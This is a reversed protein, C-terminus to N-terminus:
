FIVHSSLHQSQSCCSQRMFIGVHAALIIIGCQQVYIHDITVSRTAHDIPRDTQWVLWGQLFPQVSQSATQTTSEPPGLSGRILHPDLDGMPLSLKSGKIPFHSDWQLTYPCETTFEAFVASGISIGNTNLVQTPWHFWANSPSGSKGMSLPLKSPSPLGM